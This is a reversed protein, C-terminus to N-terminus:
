RRMLSTTNEDEILDQVRAYVDAFKEESNKFFHVGKDIHTRQLGGVMELLEAHLHAETGALPNFRAPDVLVNFYGNM